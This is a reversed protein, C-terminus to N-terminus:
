ESKKKQKSSSRKSYLSQLKLVEDRNLEAVQTNFEHLVAQKETSNMRSHEITRHKISEMYELTSLISQLHSYRSALNLKKKNAPTYETQTSKTRIIRPKTKTQSSSTKSVSIKNKKITPKTKFLNDDKLTNLDNSPSQKKIQEAIDKVVRWSKPTQNRSAMKSKNKDITHNEMEHQCNKVPPLLLKDEIQVTETVKKIIDWEQDMPKNPTIHTIPVINNVETANLHPLLSNNNSIVTATTERQAGNAQNITQIPQTFEMRHHLESVLNEDFDMFNPQSYNLLSPKSYKSNDSTSEYDFEGQDDQTFSHNEILNFFDNHIHGSRTRSLELHDDQRYM